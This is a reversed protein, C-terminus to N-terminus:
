STSRADAEAQRYGRHYDKSFYPSNWRSREDARVQEIFDCSCQCVCNDGMWECCSGNANACLPDHTM